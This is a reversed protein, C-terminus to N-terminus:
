QGQNTKFNAIWVGGIILAMGIFHGALLKEGDLVGWLVSVVPMLYTVSSAYLPGKLKVLITFLSGAVATSMFGLLIIYGMSKSAGEIVELRHLFDSFGFLYIAALPGIWLLSVSSITMPRLHQIKFKIFNLNLGYLFCALVVLFGFWHVGILDTGSGALLLIVTGALGTIIGLIAYGRFVAGFLLAGTLMTFLPSLTNLIGTIASALETQATAFLFAPIFVGMLGSALLRLHDKWELDRIQTISYPLLFIFAATVRLAGVEDPAFAKLGQKILIFSTGWILALLVLLAAPFYQRYKTM